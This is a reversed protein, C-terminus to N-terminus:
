SAPPAAPMATSLSAVTRSIAELGVPKLLHADFGAGRVRERDGPQGYGTLAVLRVRDGLSARLAAAV